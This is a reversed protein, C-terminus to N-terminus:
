SPNNSREPSPRATGPVTDPDGNRDSRAADERSAVGPADWRASSYKPSAPKALPRVPSARGGVHPAGCGALSAAMATVGARRRGVMVRASSTGTEKGNRCCSSFVGRQREYRGQLDSWFSERLDTVFHQFQATIPTVKAM